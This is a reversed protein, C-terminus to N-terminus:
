KEVISTYINHRGMDYILVNNQNFNATINQGYNM